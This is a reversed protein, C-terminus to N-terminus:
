IKSVAEEVQRKYVQIKKQLKDILDTLREQSKKDEDAAMQLEKLRRETKRAIKIEEQHRRQETDLEAELYRVREELKALARKGGRMANAEADDLRSQLEKQQLELQKRM